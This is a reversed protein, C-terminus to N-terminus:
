QLAKRFALARGVHSARPTSAKDLDAITWALKLVRDYGRMTILGRELATDIVQTEAAPLPLTRRMWTGSAEGMAQWPTERLRHQARDRAELVRQRIQASTVASRGEARAARSLRSVTVQLDIRDLLPGSLRSFYSMRERSSCVCDGNGLKGCPCPNAALVLQFGAPFRAVARARHIMVEGSELPQRLMDLVSRPFEPAEDLFLVGHAARVVAGPRIQGASGGGILSAATASHHPNEFPAAHSLREGIAEGTLSRISAVQLAQEPTLEPLISPLRAALMTKGAGPPGVMVMHHRGAAAIELAAIATENGLVDAMDLSATPSTAVTDFAIAEVPDPDLAAGLASAAHALSPVGIVTVDDVLDAEAANASPVVVRSAGCQRAALVMPLVGHSPRLRGDLGLEGIAVTSGAAEEPVVGGARLLAIAIALDFHSGAKPLSAPTLNIVVKTDPPKIGSHLMASWTRHQSQKVSADPMGVVHVQPLGPLIDAEVPVLTGALGQLAISTARGVTM